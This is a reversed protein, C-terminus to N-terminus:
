EEVYFQEPFSIHFTSVFQKSYSEGSLSTKLRYEGVVLYLMFWAKLSDESKM